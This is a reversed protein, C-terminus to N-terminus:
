SDLSFSIVCLCKSDLRVVPQLAVRLLQTLHVQLRAIKCYSALAADSLPLRGLGSMPDPFIVAKVRDNAAEAPVLM